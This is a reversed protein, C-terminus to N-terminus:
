LTVGRGEELAPQYKDRYEARAARLQYAISRDWPKPKQKEARWRAALKEVRGLKIKGYFSLRTSDNAM